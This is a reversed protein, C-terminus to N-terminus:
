LRVKAIVQLDNEAQNTDRMNQQNFDALKKMKM